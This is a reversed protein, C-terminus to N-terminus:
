HELTKLCCSMLNPIANENKIEKDEPNVFDKENEKLFGFRRVVILYIAALSGFQKFQDILFTLAFTSFVLFSDGTSAVELMLYITYFIIFTLLLTMFSQYTMLGCAQKPNDKDIQVINLYYCMLDWLIQLPNAILM